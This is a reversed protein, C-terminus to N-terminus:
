GAEPTGVDNGAQYDLVQQFGPCVSLAAQSQAKELVQLSELQDSYLLLATFVGMTAADRFVNAAVKAQDIRTQHYETAVPPPQIQKLQDATIDYLHAFARLEDPSMAVLLVNQEDASMDNWYPAGTFVEGWQVRLADDSAKLSEIYNGVEECGEASPPIVVVATPSADQAMTGQPLM